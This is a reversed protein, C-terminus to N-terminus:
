EYRVIAWALLGCLSFGFANLIGHSMAMHPIDIILTRAFISYAYLSALVMAVLSSVSSLILLFRASFSSLSPVIWILVLLALLFLGASIVLAGVMALLPSVTIGAAV